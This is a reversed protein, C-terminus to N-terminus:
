KNKDGIFIQYISHGESHPINILIKLGLEYEESTAFIFPFLNALTLAALKTGEFIIM